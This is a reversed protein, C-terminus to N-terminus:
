RVDYFRLKEAAFGRELAIQALAQRREPALSPQRSLLWLSDRETSGLLAEDYNTGVHLVGLETWALPLWRLWEPWRSTRLRSGHSDPLAQLLAESGQEGRRQLLDFAGDDRPLLGVEPPEQAPADQPAPLEGVLFWRGALRALDVEAVTQLPESHRPKLLAEILPLGLAVISPAAGPGIRSRWQPPLLPLALGILQMWPLHPRPRPAAADGGPAAPAPRRWLMWLGAAALLGAGVPLLLKRPQLRQRLQGGLSVVGRRLRDERAMLRREVRLIREELDVQAEAEAHPLRANM